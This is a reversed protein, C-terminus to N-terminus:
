LATDFVATGAGYAAARGTGMVVQSLLNVSGPEAEVAVVSAGYQVVGGCGPVMRERTAGGSESRCWRSGPPM